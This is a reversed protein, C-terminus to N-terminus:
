LRLPAKSTSLISSALPAILVAYHIYNRDKTLAVKIAMNQVNINMMNLSALQPPLEGVYVRQLENKDVYIPIEVMCEYPLNVIMGRNSVIGYIITNDGTELAHIIQTAYENSRKPKTSNETLDSIDKGQHSYYDIRMKEGVDKM